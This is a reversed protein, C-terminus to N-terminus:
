EVSLMGTECTLMCHGEWSLSTEPQVKPAFARLADVDRAVGSGKLLYNERLCILICRCCAMLALISAQGANAPIEGPVKVSAQYHAPGHNAISIM